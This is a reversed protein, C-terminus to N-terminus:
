RGEQVLATCQLTRMEGFVEHTPHDKSRLINSSNDTYQSYTYNDTQTHDYAVRHFHVKTLRKIKIIVIVIVTGVVHTSPHDIGLDNDAIM